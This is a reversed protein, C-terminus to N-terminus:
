KNNKNYYNIYFFSLTKYFWDRIYDYMNPIERLKLHYYTQHTSLKPPYDIRITLSERHSATDELVRIYIITVTIFRRNTRIPNTNMTFFHDKSLHVTGHLIKYTM